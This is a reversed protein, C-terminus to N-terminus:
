VFEGGFIERFKDHAFVQAPTGTCLVTEQLLVMRNAVQALEGFDHSVLLISLDHTNRVRDVAQYFLRRGNADMGSVPEDLLLLNPKPELALALLVRQLEGGSLAGVKRDILGEAQVTSLLELTKMRVSARVGLWVPFRSLASAFLDLVTIPMGLEFRPNQPVYGLRPTPHIAGKADLFEVKGAHPIEGILARLLTSKGGGNPGVIATLEGCHLHLSINSLLNRGGATVALGDIRSCCHTACTQRM